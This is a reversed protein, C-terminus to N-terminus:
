VNTKERKAWETSEYFAADEQNRAQGLCCAIIFLVLLVIIAAILM